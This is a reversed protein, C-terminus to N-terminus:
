KGVTSLFETVKPLSFKGDFQKEVAKSGGSGIYDLSEVYFLGVHIGGPEMYTKLTGVQNIKEAFAEMGDRLVEREGYIMMARGNKFCEINGFKNAHIKSFSIWNALSDDNEVGEIYWFGMEPSKAGLDGTTDVNSNNTNYHLPQVWPSILICSSPQSKIGDFQKFDYNPFRDFYDIDDSKSLYKCVAIALNGGASDGILHIAPDNLEQTLKSYAMLTEYIQAPFKGNPNFSLTYDVILFSYDQQVEEPLAHYIMLFGAFQTDFCNLAYGGGHLYILVNLAKENRVMWYSNETFPEGFHKLNGQTVIANSKFQTILKEMPKYVVQPIDTLQFNNALHHEVALHVNKYLTNFEKNTTSYVTGVTFYQIVTKLICAPLTIIRLIFRGSIM